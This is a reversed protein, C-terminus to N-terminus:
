PRIRWATVVRLHVESHFAVVVCLLQTRVRYRWTGMELEGEEVVGARIVNLADTTQIDDKEMEEQGHKSFSVTGGGKLIQRM